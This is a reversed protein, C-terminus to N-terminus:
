RPDPETNIIWASKWGSVHREWLEMYRLESANSRKGAADLRYFLTTGRVVAHDGDVVIEEPIVEVQSDRRDILARYYAAREERTQVPNKLNIAVFRDACIHMIRDLDGANYGAVFERTQSRIAEVAGQSGVASSGMTGLLLAVATMQLVTSSRINRNPFIRANHLRRPSM